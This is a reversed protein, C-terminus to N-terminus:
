REASEGIDKVPRHWEGEVGGVVTGDSAGVCNEEGHEFDFGRPKVFM